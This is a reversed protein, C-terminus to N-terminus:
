YSRVNQSTTTTTGLSLSFHRKKANGSVGVKGRIDFFFGKIGNQMFLFKNKRLIDFLISLIKKHKKFHSQEFRRKIFFLFIQLDRTSLMIVIIEM